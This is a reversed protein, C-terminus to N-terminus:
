KGLEGNKSTARDSTGLVTDSLSLLVTISRILLHAGNATFVTYIGPITGWFAEKVSFDQRGKMGRKGRLRQKWCGEVVVNGLQM